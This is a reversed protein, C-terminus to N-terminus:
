RRKWYDFAAKQLKRILAHAKPGQWDGIHGQALAQGGAWWGQGPLRDSQRVVLVALEPEGRGRAEADVDGLVACLARMKPRSFRYGLLGLLESYSLAEGARAAAILHARVEQADFLATSSQPPLPRLDPDVWRRRAEVSFLRKHSWYDLLHDRRGELARLLANVLEVLPRDSAQRALFLAVVRIYAQTITEHYGESDSNRGGVAVNYGAIIGPLERELVIDPRERLLWLCAALHAEHTWEERPLTRGLLGEGVRRVADDSAFLRPAHEM